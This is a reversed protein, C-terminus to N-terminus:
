IIVFLHYLYFFKFKNIKSKKKYTEQDTERLVSWGYDWFLSGESFGKHKHEFIQSSPSFAIWEREECRGLKRLFIWIHLFFIQKLSMSVDM